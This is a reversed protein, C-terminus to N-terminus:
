DDVGNKTESVLEMAEVRRERSKPALETLYGSAAMERKVNKSCPLCYTFGLSKKRNCRACNM